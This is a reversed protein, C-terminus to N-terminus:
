ASAEKARASARGGRLLLVALSRATAGELDDPVRPGNTVFALPLSRGAVASVLEGVRDGDDVRSFAVCSPRLPAFREVIRAAHDRHLGSPLLLAVTAEPVSARLASLKELRETDSSSIGPTDVVVFGDRGADQAARALDDPGDVRALVADMHRAFIETQELSGVKDVDAQALFVRRRGGFATRAALKAATTTKGSGPPGVVFLCRGGVPISSFTLLAEMGRVAAEALRPARSVSSADKGAIAAFRAALDPSVGSAVLAEHAAELSSAPRAPQASPAVPASSRRPAGVTVEVGRLGLRGSLEKTGLVLADPGMEERAAALALALDPARYTKLLM